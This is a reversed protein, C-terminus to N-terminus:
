AFAYNSKNALLNGITFPIHFVIIAPGVFMEITPAVTFDMVKKNWTLGAFDTFYLLHRDVCGWGTSKVKEAWEKDDGLYTQTDHGIALPLLKFLWTPAKISTWPIMFTGHLTAFHAYDVSQDVMDIPLFTYFGTDWKVHPAYGEDIMEKDLSAPPYFEPEKDDAHFYVLVIGWWDICKYTKQKRSSSQCSTPDKIYPVDMITGDAAFKWKHFPCQICNDVIKGGKGLNAGLHICFADMCVPKGTVQDRWMVFTRGLARYELVKGNALDSSDCFHYWTNAVPSPYTNARKLNHVVESPNTTCRSFMINKNLYKKIMKGFLIHFVGCIFVATFLRYDNYKNICLLSGMVTILIVLKVLVM